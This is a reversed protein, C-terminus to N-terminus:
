HNATGTSVWLGSAKKNIVVSIGSRHPLPSLLSSLYNDSQTLHPCPPTPTSDPSDVAGGLHNIGSLRVKELM